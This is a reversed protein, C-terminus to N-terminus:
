EKVSRRKIIQWAEVQPLARGLLEDRCVDRRHRRRAVGCELGKLPWHLEHVQSRMLGLGRFMGRGAGSAGVGSILVLM